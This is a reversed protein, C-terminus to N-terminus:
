TMMSFLSAPSVSGYMKPVLHGASHTFTMGLSSISICRTGREEFEPLSFSVIGKFGPNVICETADHSFISSFVNSSSVVAHLHSSTAEPCACPPNSPLQSPVAGLKSEM